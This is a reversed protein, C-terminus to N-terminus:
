PLASPLPVSLSAYGGTKWAGVGGCGLGHHVVFTKRGRAFAGDCGSSCGLGADHCADLGHYTRHGDDRFLGPGRGHSAGPVSNECPSAYTSDLYANPDISSLLKELVFALIQLPLRCSHSIFTVREQSTLMGPLHANKESKHLPQSQNHILESHDEWTCTNTTCGVPVSLKKCEGKASSCTGLLRAWVSFSQFVSSYSSHCQLFGLVAPKLPAAETRFCKDGVIAV